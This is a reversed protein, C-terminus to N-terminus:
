VGFHVYPIWFTSERDKVGEGSEIIFVHRSPGLDAGRERAIDETVGNEDWARPQHRDTRSRGVGEKELWSKRLKRSANHLGLCVSYDTLGGERMGEYVVKAMKTCSEDNVDWLTGIVHRFGALQFSSILHISEDLFRDDRVRGTGCASLYALFLSRERINVDLLDAVTIKGDSVVLHSKSPDIGNTCGHGAFHFISCSPLQAVIDSRQQGPATCDFPIDKCIDRLIRVEDNAFRLSTHGPTEQMAVLLARPPVSPAAKSQMPRQRGHIIAKISSSYSSMVRDIVTENSGAAHRGAAHLPLRSLSGIPVWWVRPWRKSLPCATYELADLVPRAIVDWLWALIHPAGLENESSRKDVDNSHLNPLPLARIRDQEVLVAHSGYESVNIVTIPGSTAAQMIDKKNPALLFSEFGPCSRIKSLLQDFAKDAEYPLSTRVQLREGRTTPQSLEGRLRDFEEALDPYRERLTLVDARMEELSTALLGRGQELLSLSDYPEKGAKYAIAAADSALGAASSLIHQKDSTRLSRLTLTPVLSVAVLVAEYAQEWDSVLACCRLVDIGAEIRTLVHANSQRLALQHNEIARKLESAEHTRNYREELAVGLTGLAEAYGPHDQPTGDVAAAAAQVAEDLSGITRTMEYKDRHCLAIIKLGIVRKQVPSAELGLRTLRLAEEVDVIKGTKKYRESLHRALGNLADVRGHGGSTISVADEAFGIAKDLYSLEETLRYMDSLRDGIVQLTRARNPNGDPTAELANYALHLAEDLAAKTGTREFKKTFCNCIAILNDSKLPSDKSVADMATKSLQIAEDLDPEIEMETYRLYLCKALLALYHPREPDDQVARSIAARQVRIAEELHAISGKRLFLDRLHICLSNFYQPERAGGATGEVAERTVQIAEELDSVSDTAAFKESLLMGLNNLIPAKKLYGKTVEAEARVLRIANELDVMVHSTQYRMGLLVGLKISARRLLSQEEANDIALKTFNIAEDLRDPVGIMKFEDALHSGLVFFVKSQARRNNADLHLTSKLVHIADQLDALEETEEYRRELCDRLTNLMSKGEESAAGPAINVTEKLIAIAESLPGIHWTQEFLEILSDAFYKCVPVRAHHNIPIVEFVARVAELVQESFRVNDMMSCLDGLHALFDTLKEMEVLTAGSRIAAHAIPIVVEKLDSISGVGLALDRHFVELQKVLKRKDWEDGNFEDIGKRTLRIAEQLDSMEGAKGYRARFRTALIRFSSAQEPDDLPTVNILKWSVQILDDLDAIADTDLCKRLVHTQLERLRAIQTEMTAEDVAARSSQIALDLDSMAQTKVYKLRLQTALAALRRSRTPYDLPQPMKDIGTRIWEISEELDADDETFSYRISLYHGLQSMYLSKESSTELSVETAVRTFRIAENLDDITKTSRSYRVYLYRGLNGLPEAQSSGEPIMTFGVHTVRIAEELVSKSKRPQLNTHLFQAKKYLLRGLFVLYMARPALSGTINLATRIMEIGEEIDTLYKEEEYRTELLLALNYLITARDQAAEQSTESAQHIRTAMASATRTAQVADELDSLKHTKEFKKKLKSGLDSLIRANKPTDGTTVNAARHLRQIAEDLKITDELDVDSCPNDMTADILQYREIETFICVAFTPILDSYPVPLLLVAHDEGV